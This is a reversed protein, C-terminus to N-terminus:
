VLLWFRISALVSICFIEIVTVSLMLQKNPKDAIFLRTPTQELRYRPGAFWSFAFGGLLGGFHGWNDIGPSLGFILNIVVIFLTNMLMPNANKGFLFRNRHIFIAEAAVLGFIATSAGLSPKNSLIFSVVNGAFGSLIYLILFRWHGYYRELRVGFAYLAYMNFLIHPISAHLLMPSFLRWIEGSLILENIKMGLLAPIDYGGPSIAKSIFQILYVILTIGLIIFTVRPRNAPLIVQVGPSYDSKSSEPVSDEQPNPPSSNISM